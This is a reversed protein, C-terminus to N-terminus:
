AVKRKSLPKKAKQQLKEGELAREMLMQRKEAEAFRTLIQRMLPQYGLGNIRAIAKLDEILSKQLRISILQLDLSENILNEDIAPAVQVFREDQGLQGSEWAEDTGVIKKDQNNM